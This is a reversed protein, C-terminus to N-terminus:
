TNVSCGIVRYCAQLDTPAELLLMALSTNCGAHPQGGEGLEGICATVPAEM